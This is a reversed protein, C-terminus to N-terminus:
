LEAKAESAMPGGLHSPITLMVEAVYANIEQFSLQADGNADAKEMMEEPSFPNEDSSDAFDELEELSLHGDGNRDAGEILSEALSGADGAGTSPPAPAWKIDQPPPSGSGPAASDIVKPNITYTRERIEDDETEGALWREEKVAAELVTKIKGVAASAGEKSAAHVAFDLLTRGDEEIVQRPNAGSSLLAEVACLHGRAVAIQLASIGKQDLQNVGAAQTHKLEAELAACAGNYAALHLSPPKEPKGGEGGEGGLSLEAGGDGKTKPSGSRAAVCVALALLM